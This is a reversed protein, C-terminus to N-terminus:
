FGQQENGKQLPQAQVNTFGTNPLPGTNGGMPQQGQLPQQPPYAGQPQNFGQQPPANPNYYNAPPQQQPPYQPAQTNNAYPNNAPAPQNQYNYDPQQPQNYHTNYGGMAQAKEAKKREKKEKKEKKRLKKAAAKISGALSISWSVLIICIGYMILVVALISGVLNRGEEIHGVFINLIGVWVLTIALSLILIILRIISLVLVTTGFSIFDKWEENKLQCLCVASYIIITLDFAFFIYTGGAASAYHGLLVITVVTEIIFLVSLVILAIFGGKLFARPEREGCCCFLNFKKTDGM